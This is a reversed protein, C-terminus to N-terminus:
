HKKIKANCIYGIIILFLLVLLIVLIWNRNLSKKIKKKNLIIKDEYWPSESEVLEIPSNSLNINLDNYSSDM